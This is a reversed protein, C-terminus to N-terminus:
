TPEGGEGPCTINWGMPGCSIWHVWGALDGYHSVWYAWDCCHTIAIIQEVPEWGDPPWGEPPDDLSYSM